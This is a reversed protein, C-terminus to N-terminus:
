FRQKGIYSNICGNLIPYYNFNKSKVFKSPSLIDHLLNLELIDNIYNNGHIDYVQINVLVGTPARTGSLPTNPYPKINSWGGYESQAGVCILFLQSGTPPYGVRGWTDKTHCTLTM